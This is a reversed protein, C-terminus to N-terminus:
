GSVFRLKLKQNILFRLKSDRVFETSLFINEIKISKKIEKKRIKKTKENREDIKSKLELWLMLLTMQDMAIMEKM